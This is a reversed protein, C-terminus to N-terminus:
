RINWTTGYVIAVRVIDFIIYHMLHFLPILIVDYQPSSAFSCFKQDSFGICEACASGETQQDLVGVNTPRIWVM